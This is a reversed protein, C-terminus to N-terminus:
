NVGPLEEFLLKVPPTAPEPGSAPPQVSVDPAPPVKAADEEAKRRAAEEEAAKQSALAQARQRAEEELRAMEAAEAKERESARFKYLAVERRLRQKELVNSQLTEVRRREREFARLSLYNTLDTVDFSRELASLEGSVLIRFDPDAGALSEEGPKLMIAVAGEALGAELDVRLDGSLKALDNEAGVNQARVVGESINFPVTIGALEADENDILDEVLPRVKDPTIEGDILDAAALLPPLLSLNLGSVALKGIRMEGSGNAASLLEAVSKGSAESVLTLDFSGTAPPKGGAGEQDNFLSAMEAGALTMRGQVFGTGEANALTMRGALRGGLWDGGIDELALGGAGASLHTSFDSVKGFVGPWFTKAKVDFELDPGIRPTSLQASSLAGTLPDNVPGFVTEALWALDLTDAQVQGEARLAAGQWDLTLDGLIANGAFIGELESVTARRDAIMVEASAIVPLGAGPQPLNVGNMMLYPELDDSDISVTGTGQLFTDAALEIKGKATLVTQGATLTLMADAPTNGEGKLKLALLGGSDAGIPLPNLGAQGILIQANPNELTADLSMAGTNPRGPMAGREYKATVRSDNATGGFNVSLGGGQTDGFSIHGTLNTHAYWGANRVLADLAPHQPLHTKLITLFPGPEEAAFTFDGTGTAALLTGEAKGSARIVAGSLDGINLKELSVSKGDVTFVTDLDRAAIDFATFKGVKLRAAMRQAFLSTGAEEGTVLTALARFANLDIENGTLDVSLNPAANAFSQREVRGSLTAPGISLELREFRQIEPTLNVLASFGATKMQRIAPDVAGTIWSALGSPQTSAVLLDGSFSPEGVLVLNGSAEVQTRGPLIAVAKDVTWGTGAPRLDLRIDRLVTDGAVIAPLSLNARGPVNPIPIQGAMSMLLDLRQRISSAASRGTKGMAGENGIRSVDIQQGEATLLFEPKAGTDLTAEGTVAYPNGADGLELRYSAVRVRENTLEFEGKVRPPSVKAAGDKKDKDAIRWFAQFNGKYSPKGATLALDGDLEIDFPRTDPSLRAKLPVGGTAPDPQLSSLHFGGAEGDVVATGDVSWPGALSRASMEADLKTVKRTRGSQEDVFEIEGGSVHVNELVVTRAPIDANSGRLWDLTGDALLRIRAKPEEVRMDFIRAEGSLFPALEADMSFRAVSVLPLGNSDTGVTVDHLTVSPFPLIRAEVDGHVTVKKGLIRSAQDEFDKRFDTWDVFLPGLLAAFLAVVLLGGFFVLLRGLM